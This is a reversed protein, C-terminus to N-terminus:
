PATAGKPGTGAEPRIPLSAKAADANFGSDKFDNKLARMSATYQSYALEDRITQALLKRLVSLTGPDLKQSCEDQAAWLEESPALAQKADDNEIGLTLRAALRRTAPLTPQTHPTEPQVSRSLLLTLGGLLVQADALKTDDTLRPLLLDTHWPSEHFLKYSHM